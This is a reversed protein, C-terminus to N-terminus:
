AEIDAGAREAQLVLDPEALAQRWGNRQLIDRARNLEDRGAAEDPGFLTGTWWVAAAHPNALLPPGAEAQIAAKSSALAAERDGGVFALVSEALLLSTSSGPEGEALRSLPDDLTSRAAATDGVMTLTRALESATWTVLAREKLDRCLVFAERLDREAEEFRGAVRM